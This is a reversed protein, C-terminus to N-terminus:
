AKPPFMGKKPSFTGQMAPAAMKPIRSFARREMPSFFCSSSYARCFCKKWYILLPARRPETKGTRELDKKRQKKFFNLTKTLLGKFFNCM